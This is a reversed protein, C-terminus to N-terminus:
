AEVSPIAWAIESLSEFIPIYKIHFTVRSEQRLDYLANRIKDHFFGGIQNGFERSM